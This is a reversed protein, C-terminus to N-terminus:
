KTGEQELSVPSPSAEKKVGDKNVGSPQPYFSVLGLYFLVFAEEQGCLHQFSFINKRTERQLM